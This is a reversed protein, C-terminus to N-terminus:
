RTNRPDKQFSVIMPLTFLSFGMNMLGALLRYLWLSIYPTFSHWHPSFNYWSLHMSQPSINQFSLGYWHTRHLFHLLSLEDRHPIQLQHPSMSFVVFLAIFFPPPFYQVILQIDYPRSCILRIFALPSVTGSMCYMGAVFSWIFRACLSPIFGFIRRFAGLCISISRQRWQLRITM